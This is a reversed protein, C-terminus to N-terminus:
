AVRGRRSPPTVDVDGEVRAVEKGRTLGGGGTWRKRFVGLFDEDGEFLLASGKKEVDLQGGFKVIGVGGQGKLLENESALDAVVLKFAQAFDLSEGGVGTTVPGEMRVVAGVTVWRTEM